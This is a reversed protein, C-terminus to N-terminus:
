SVGRRAEPSPMLRLLAALMPEYLWLFQVPTRAIVAVQRPKIAAVPQRAADSGARVLSRGGDATVLQLEGGLLYLNWADQSGRDLLTSGPAMSFVPSTAAVIRRAAPDLAALREFFRLAEPEAYPFASLARLQQSLRFRATGGCHKDLWYVYDWDRFRTAGYRNVLEEVVREDVAYPDVPETPQPRAGGNAPRAEDMIYLNPASRKEPRVVAQRLRTLYSEVMVGAHEAPPAMALLNIVEVVPTDHDSARTAREPWPLYQNLHTGRYVLVPCYWPAGPLASDRYDLLLEMGRYLSKERNHQQFRTLQGDETDPAPFLRRLVPDEFALTLSQWPKDSNDSHVIAIRYDRTDRCGQYHELFGAIPRALAQGLDTDTHFSGDDRYRGIAGSTTLLFCGRLDPMSDILNM